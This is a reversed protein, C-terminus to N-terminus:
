SRQVYNGIQILGSSTIGVDCAFYISQLIKFHRIRQQSLIAKWLCHVYNGIEFKFKPTRPGETPGLSKHAGTRRLPQVGERPAQSCSCNKGLAQIKIASPPFIITEIESVAGRVNITPLCLYYGCTSKEDFFRGKKCTRPRTHSFARLFTAVKM